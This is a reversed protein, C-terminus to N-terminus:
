WQTPPLYVAVRHHFIVTACAIQLNYIEQDAHAVVGHNTSGNGHSHSHLVSLLLAFDLSERFERLFSPTGKKHCKKGKDM